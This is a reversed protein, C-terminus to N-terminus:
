CNEIFENLKSEILRPNYNKNIYEIAESKIIQIDSNLIHQIHSLYDETSEAIFCAKSNIGQIAIRSGIVPIGFSLAELIKIRVGSGSFIPALLIGHKKM